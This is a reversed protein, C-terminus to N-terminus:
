KAWLRAIHHAATKKGKRIVLRTRVPRLATAYTRGDALGDTLKWEIKISMTRQGQGKAETHTM